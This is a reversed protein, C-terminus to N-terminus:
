KIDNLMELGKLAILYASAMHMDFGKYQHIGIYAVTASNPTLFRHAIVM